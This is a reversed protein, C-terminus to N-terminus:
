SAPEANISDRAQLSVLDPSIAPINCVCGTESAASLQHIFTNHPSTVRLLELLWGLVRACRFKDM